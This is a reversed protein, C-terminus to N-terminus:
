PSVTGSLLDTFPKVNRFLREAGRMESLREQITTRSSGIVESLRELTIPVHAKECVYAILAAVVATRNKGGFVDNTRVVAGIGVAAEEIAKPLRLPGTFNKVQNEWNDTITKLAPLKRLEEYAKELKRGSKGIEFGLNKLMVGLDEATKSIGREMCAYRICTADFIANPKISKAIKGDEFLLADKMIKCARDAVARELNLANQMQRIQKAHKMIRETQKDTTIRKQRLLRARTEPKGDWATSTGLIEITGDGDYETRSKNKVGHELAFQRHESTEDIYPNDGVMGCEMCVYNGTTPDDRVATKHCRICEGGRFTM